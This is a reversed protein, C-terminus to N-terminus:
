VLKDLINRLDAMSRKGVMYKKQKGWEFIVITPVSSIGYEEAIEQDRAVNVKGFAVQNQYKKALKRIKPSMARCPGCHPSHFDILTLPFKEIFGQFDEEHLIDVSDPWDDKSPEEGHSSDKWFKLRDKIGM